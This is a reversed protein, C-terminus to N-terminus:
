DARCTASPQPDAGGDGPQAQGLWAALAGEADPHHDRMTRLFSTVAAQQEVDLAAWKSRVFGALAAGHLDPRFAWIASDVVAEGADPHRLVWILYAPIFHRFGEASLFALAAYESIVLDDPVQSWHGVEYLGQLDMDDRCEPHLLAANDPREDAAFAARIQEIVENV